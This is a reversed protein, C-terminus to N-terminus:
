PGEGSGKRVFVCATRDRHVLKWDSSEALLAALPEDSPWIVWETQRETLTAKWEPGASATRWYEKIFPEGYLDNRGDIFVRHRPYLRYIFYGGWNDPNFVRAPLAAREIYRVAEVPFVQPHFDREPLGFRSWTGTGLLLAVALVAAAIWLGGRLSEELKGSRELWQRWSGAPGASSAALAADLMRALLPASVIAAYPIHRAAYLALGALAVPPLIEAPRPRYPGLAALLVVLGLFAAFYLNQFGHFDPSQFELNHEFIFRSSLYRYIYAHLRLGDPHLFTAAAMALGTWALPALPARLGCAAAFDASHGRQPHPGLAVLSSEKAKMVRELLLGALTVGLLIFGLLFGGHFQVWLWTLLPLPWLRVPLGRVYADLRSSVVVVLLTSVLHPRALWHVSLPLVTALVTATAVALSIGQRRLARYLLTPTFAITAAALAVVGTLGGLAEAAAMAVESLYEYAVWPAGPMTYSFIDSRPIRGETLMFRGAAVHWGTDEALLFEGPGQRALVIGLFFCLFIVDAVTPLLFPALSLRKVGTEWAGAV